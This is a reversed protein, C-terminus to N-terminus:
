NQGLNKSCKGVEDLLSLRKTDAKLVSDFAPTDDAQVDASVCCCILSPQNICSVKIFRVLMWVRGSNVQNGFSSIYCSNTTQDFKSDFGELMM